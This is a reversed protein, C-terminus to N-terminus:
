YRGLGAPKVGEDAGSIKLGGTPAGLRSLMGSLAIRWYSMAPVM